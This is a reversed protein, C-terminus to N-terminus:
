VSFYVALITVFLGFGLAGFSAIRDKKCFSTMILGSLYFLLLSVGFGMALFDFWSFAFDGIKFKSGKSKHMLLLVGYLNRKTVQMVVGGDREKLITAGYYVNGMSVNGRAIRISIDSPIELNHEKLLALMLGQEEGKKPMSDLPIKTIKAGADQRIDYIYGVGTLAYIIALPLFFLSLYLHLKIWFKKSIKLKKISKAIRIVRAFRAFQLNIIRLKHTKSM